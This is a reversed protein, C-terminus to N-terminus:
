LTETRKSNHLQSRQTCSIVVGLNLHHILDKIIVGCLLHADVVLALHTHHDVAATSAEAVLHRCTPM